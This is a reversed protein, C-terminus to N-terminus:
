LSLYFLHFIKIVMYKKTEFVMQVEGQFYSKCNKYVHILFKKLGIFFNFFSSRKQARTMVCIRFKCQVIYLFSSRNRPKKIKIDFDLQFPSFSDSLSTLSFQFQQLFTARTLPSHKFLEKSNERSENNGWNHLFSSSKGRERQWRRIEGM